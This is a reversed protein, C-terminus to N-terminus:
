KQSIDLKFNIEKGSSVFKDAKLPHYNLLSSTWTWKSIDTRKLDWCLSPVHLAKNVPTNINKCARWDGTHRLNKGRVYFQSRYWTILHVGFTNSSLECFLYIQDKAGRDWNTEWDIWAWKGRKGWSLNRLAIAHSQFVLGNNGKERKVGWIDSSFISIERSCQKRGIQTVAYKCLIGPGWKGERQDGERLFDEKSWTNFQLQIVLSLFGPCGKSQSWSTTQKLFIIAGCVTNRSSPQRRSLLGLSPTHPTGSIQEAERKESFVLFIVDQNEM